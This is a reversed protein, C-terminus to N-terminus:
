QEQRARAELRPLHNNIRPKRQGAWQGKTRFVGLCLNGPEAGCEPCEVSRVEETSFDKRM